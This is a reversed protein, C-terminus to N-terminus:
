AEMREAVANRLRKSGTEIRSQVASRSLGLALAITRQSLGRAALEFVEREKETLVHGHERLIMADTLRSCRRVTLCGSRFSSGM